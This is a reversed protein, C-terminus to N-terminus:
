KQHAALLSQFQKVKDIDIKWKAAIEEETMGANLANIIQMSIDIGEKFADERLVSMHTEYNYEINLMMIVGFVDRIMRM